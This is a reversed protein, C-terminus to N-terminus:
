LGPPDFAITAPDVAAGGGDVVLAHGTVTSADGSALFACVSAIEEPEAVRRLPVHRTTLRYAEEASVGQREALCAM